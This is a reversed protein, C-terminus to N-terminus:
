RLLRSSMGYPNLASASPVLSVGLIRRSYRSAHTRASFAIASRAPLSRGPRPSSSCIGGGANPGSRPAANRAQSVEGLVWACADAPSFRSTMDTQSLRTSRRIAKGCGHPASASFKRWQHRLEPGASPMSGSHASGTSGSASRRSGSSVKPTFM